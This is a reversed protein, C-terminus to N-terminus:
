CCANWAHRQCWYSLLHVLQALRRDAVTNRVEANIIANLFDVANQKNVGGFWDGDCPSMAGYVLVNGAYQVCITGLDIRCWAAILGCSHRQLAQHLLPSLVGTPHQAGLLRPSLICPQSCLM